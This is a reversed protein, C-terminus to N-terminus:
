NDKVDCFVFYVTFKHFYFYVCAVPNACKEFAMLHADMIAFIPDNEDFGIREVCYCIVVDSGHDGGEDHDIGGKSNGCEGYKGVCAFTDGAYTSGDNDEFRLSLLKRVM